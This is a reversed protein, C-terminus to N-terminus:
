KKARSKEDKAKYIACLDGIKKYESDSLSSLFTDVLIEVTEKQSEGYGLIGLANIQNRIKQNVRVNAALLDTDIKSEEPNLIDSKQITTKTIITKGRSIGGNKKSIEGLLGGM